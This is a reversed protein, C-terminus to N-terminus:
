PKKIRFFFIIVAFINSKIISKHGGINLIFTFKLYFYPSLIWWITQLTSWDWTTCKLKTLLIQANWNSWSCWIKCIEYVSGDSLFRTWYRLLLFSPLGLWRATRGTHATFQISIKVCGYTRIQLVSIFVFLFRNSTVLLYCFFIKIYSTRICRYM